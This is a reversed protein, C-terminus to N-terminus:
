DRNLAFSVKDNEMIQFDSIRQSQRVLRLGLEDLQEEIQDLSSFLQDNVKSEYDRCLTLIAPPVESADITGVFKGGQEEVTVKGITRGNKDVISGKM